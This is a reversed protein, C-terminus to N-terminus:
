WPVLSSTFWRWRHASWLEAQAALRVRLDVWPAVAPAWAADAIGALRPLLLVELEVPTAVTETWLAAEIGALSEAGAGLEALAAVPDWACVEEVTGRPYLPMGLRRGLEVQEPDAPPERYRKDLYLHSAPSLVVKAGQALATGLDTRATRLMRALEALVAPTLKMGVPMAAPDVDGRLVLAELDAGFALWHQLIVDPGPDVRAAEQWQIPLVGADRALERAARVFTDYADPDMGFAEDGGLHLYPGACYRAAADIVDRGFDLVGPHDPELLNAPPWPDHMGTRANLEPLARMAAGCHGPVDVEPIVTVFRDAAYWVLEDLETQTYWGGPREGYAGRGGIETLAPRGPVPLRWGQDDTLHLHLVNLKHLDLVDIVRRLEDVPVFCRVVDLSLGRWAVRPADVIARPDIRVGGDARPSGALLQRLTTLGRHIGEASPAQVVVGTADLDLRYGEDAPDRGTPSLGLTRHRALESVSRLELRVAGPGTRTTVLAPGGDRRVAEVFRNAVALLEADAVHVTAGPVVELPAGARRREDVPRPVLASV